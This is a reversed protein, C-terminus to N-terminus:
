FTICWGGVFATWGHSSSSHSFVPQNAAAHFSWNATARPDTHLAHQHTILHLHTHMGKCRQLFDERHGQHERNKSVANKLPKTKFTPHQTPLHSFNLGETPPLPPFLLIFKLHRVAALGRICVSGGRSSWPPSWLRTVREARGLELAQNLLVAYEERDEIMGLFLIFNVNFLCVAALGTSRQEGEM